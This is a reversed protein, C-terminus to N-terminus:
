HDSIESEILPAGPWGKAAKSEVKECECVNMCVGEQQLVCRVVPAWVSLSLTQRFHLLPFRM